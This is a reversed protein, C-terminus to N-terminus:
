DEQSHARLHTHMPKFLVWCDQAVQSEAWPESHGGWSGLHLLLSFRAM